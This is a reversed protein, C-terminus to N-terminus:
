QPTRWHKLCTPCDYDYWYSDSHSDWNGTNAGPKKTAKVHKCKDQHKDLEDYLISIQRKIRHAKLEPM